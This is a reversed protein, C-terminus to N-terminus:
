KWMWERRNCNNESKTAWKVNGPEYNGDNNIRELTYEPSPKPGLFNIFLEFSKQWGIWVTIGRGGYDPYGPNKNNFCRQKMARWALYESKGYMGHRYNPNNRGEISGM